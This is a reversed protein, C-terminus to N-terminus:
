LSSTPAGYIIAQVLRDLASKVRNLEAEKAVQITRANSRLRNTESVFEKCFTAFLEPNMLEQTLAGLVRGEISTRAISKRNDCTGKNRASSCGVHTQSIISTGRGYVGCSHLGSLLYKALRSKSM